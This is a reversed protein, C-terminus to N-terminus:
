ESLIIINERVRPQSKHLELGDVDANLEKLLDLIHRSKIDVTTHSYLGKEDMVRKVILPYKKGVTKDVARPSKRLTTSYTWRTPSRILFM